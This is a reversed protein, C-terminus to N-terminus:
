SGDADATLASFAQSSAEHGLEQKPVEEGRLEAEEAGQELAVRRRIEGATPRPPTRTGFTQRRRVHSATRLLAELSSTGFCLMPVLALRDHCAHIASDVGQLLYGSEAPPSSPM